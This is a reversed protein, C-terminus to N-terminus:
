PMRVLLMFLPPPSCSYQNQYTYKYPVLFEVTEQLPLHNKFPLEVCSIITGQLKFSIWFSKYMEFTNFIPKPLNNFLSSASASGEVITQLSKEEKIGARFAKGSIANWLFESLLLSIQFMGQRTHPVRLLWDRRRQQPRGGSLKSSMTVKINLDTMILSWWQPLTQNLSSDSPHCSEENSVCRGWQYQEHHNIEEFLILRSSKRSWARLSRSKGFPIVRNIMIMAIIVIVIFVIIIIIVVIIRHSKWCCLPDGGFYCCLSGFPNKRGSSVTVFWFILLCWTLTLTTMIYIVVM